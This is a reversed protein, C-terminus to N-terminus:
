WGKWCRRIRKKWGKRCCKFRKKWFGKGKTEIVIPRLNPMEKMSFTLDTKERMDLKDIVWGVLLIIILVTWMWFSMALDLLVAM